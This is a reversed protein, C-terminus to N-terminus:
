CFPVAGCRVLLLAFCMGMAAAAMQQHAFQLNQFQYPHGQLYMVAWERTFIGDNCFVSTRYTKFGKVQQAAFAAAAAAAAAAAHPHSYAGQAQAQLAARQQDTLDEGYLRQQFTVLTLMCVLFESRM